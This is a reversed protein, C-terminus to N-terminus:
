WRRVALVSACTGQLGLGEQIATRSNLEDLARAGLFSVEDVSGQLFRPKTGVGGLKSRASARLMGRRDVGAGADAQGWCTRSLGALASTMRLGWSATAFGQTM